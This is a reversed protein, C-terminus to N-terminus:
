IDKETSLGRSKDALQDSLSAIGRQLSDTAQMDKSYALVEKVVVGLDKIAM